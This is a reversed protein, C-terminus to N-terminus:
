EAFTMFNRLKAHTINLVQYHDFPIFQQLLKLMLTNEITAFTIFFNVKACPHCEEIYAFTLNKMIKANSLLFIGAHIKVNKYSKSQCLVKEAFDIFKRVNACICINLRVMNRSQLVYM